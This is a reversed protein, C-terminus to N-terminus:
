DDLFLSVHAGGLTYSVGQCLASGFLTHGKLIMAGKSVYPRGSIEVEIDLGRGTDVLDAVSVPLRTRMEAGLTGPHGDSADAASTCQRMTAPDGALRVCVRTVAPTMGPLDLRALRLLVRRSPAIADRCAGDVKPRLSRCTACHDALTECMSGRTDQLSPACDVGGCCPGAVAAPPAAPAPDSKPPITPSPSPAPPPPTFTAMSKLNVTPTEATTSRTMSWIGASAGAVAFFFAALLALRLPRRLAPSTATTPTGTWTTSRRSPRHLSGSSPNSPRPARSSPGVFSPVSQPAPVSPYSGRAEVFSRGSPPSHSPAGGMMEEVVGRLGLAVNTWAKDSTEWGTSSVPRANQPLMGLGDIPTGKWDVHRVIVPVVRAGGARHRAIARTLERDYLHDCALFDPSILLLILHAQDLHRDVAVRTEQGPSIQQATWTRILRSRQLATLHTELTRRAADDEPAYSIFVDISM